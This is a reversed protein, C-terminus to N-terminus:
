KAKAQSLPWGSVFLMYSINQKKRKTLKHHLTRKFVRILIQNEQITRFATNSYGLFFFSFSFFYQIMNYLKIGNKSERRLYIQKWGSETSRKSDLFGKGVVDRSLPTSTFFLVKTPNKPATNYPIYQAHKFNTGKFTRKEGGRLPWHNKKKKKCFFGWMLGLM